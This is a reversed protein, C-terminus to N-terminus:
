RFVDVDPRARVAARAIWVPRQAPDSCAAPGTPIATAPADAAGCSGRCASNSCSAAKQRDGLRYVCHDHRGQDCSKTTANDPMEVIIKKGDFEDRYTIWNRGDRKTVRARPKIREVPRATSGVWQEWFETYETM